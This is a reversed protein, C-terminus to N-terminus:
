KVQSNTQESATLQNKNRAAKFYSQNRQEFIPVCTPCWISSQFVIEGVDGEREEKILVWIM